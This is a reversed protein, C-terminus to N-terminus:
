RILCLKKVEVFHGAQLRVFYMGTVVTEGQDSQGDWKVSYKGSVQTCDALTAIKQGSVNYVQITIAAPSYLSYRILTEANFPNPYNQLLEFQAPLTQDKAQVFSGPFLEDLPLSFYIWDKGGNTPFVVDLVNGLPTGTRPVSIGFGSYEVRYGQLDFRISDVTTFGDDAFLYIIGADGLLFFRENRDQFIRSYWGAAHPIEGDFLTEGHASFVAHRQQVAGATTSGAKSYLVHVHGGTDVYADIQANCVVLPFAETPPEEVFAREVLPAMSSDAHWYRFANFVYDSANDPKQYGLAQWRVDRTSILSVGNEALPFVYTYCYRFDLDTKRNIWQQQAASYNSWRFTGGPKEGGQSSLVCINGSLDIGASNYPWYGSSQGGVPQQHLDWDEGARTLTWMRARGDPWGIIHLTGDPAALLNVPERGAVGQAIVRWGDATREAARWERELYGGGETTFAAYVGNRTRVIRCQHGGWANGGDGVAASDCVVQFNVTISDSLAFSNRYQSFLAVLIVLIFFHRWFRISM